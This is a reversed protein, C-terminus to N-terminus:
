HSTKKDDQVIERMLISSPVGEQDEKKSYEEPPAIPSLKFVNTPVKLPSVVKIPTEENEKETTAKGQDDSLHSLDKYLHVVPQQIPLHLLSTNIPKEEIKDKTLKEESEYAEPPAIPSLKFVNTPNEEKATVKIVIDKDADSSTEEEKKDSSEIVKQNNSLHSLDKYLLSTPEQTSTTGTISETKSEAKENSKQSAYAEPPAIPSLKQVNSLIDSPRQEKVPEEEKKNKDDVANKEDTLHSLDKYQRVNPQETLAELGIVSVFDQPTDRNHGIEAPLEPYNPNPDYLDNPKTEEKEIEQSLKQSDEKKETSLIPSVKTLSERLAFGAKLPDEEQTKKLKEHLEYLSILKPVQVLEPSKGVHTEEEDRRENGAISNGSERAHAPYYIKRSEDVVLNTRSEKTSELQGYNRDLRISKSLGSHEHFAEALAPNIEELPQDGNRIYVPIYGPMSPLIQYPYSHAHDVLPALLVLFYIARTGRLMGATQM